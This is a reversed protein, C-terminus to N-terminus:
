LLCNSHPVNVPTLEPKQRCKALSAQTFAALVTLSHTRRQQQQPKLCVTLVELQATLFGFSGLPPTRFVRCPSLYLSERGCRRTDGDQGLNAVCDRSVFEFICCSWTQFCIEAYTRLCLDFRLCRLSRIVDASCWIWGIGVKVGVDGGRRYRSGGWGCTSVLTAGLLSILAM